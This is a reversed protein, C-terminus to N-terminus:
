EAYLLCRERRRLFEDFPRDADNPRHPEQDLLSAVADANGLLTMIADGQWKERYERRLYQAIEFGVDCPRLIERDTIVLRVGGCDQGEFKSSTPRFRLPIARLGPLAASNLRRALGYGDMWPAGFVEFPTDTGRGVSVNTTEMWGIGPYLIAAALSRMNPSPSIWPLETRDYWDGRHWGELPIVELKARPVRERQFLRALEGVTMGHRVPMAHFGVFSERGPDLMPGECRDGRIPNPRDLVVFRIGHEAAAELCEGMTSVYTYYRTGIDQIDFVLTDLNALSQPTPRRTEGYLSFVPLGTEPDESDGIRPDDRQGQLGHEPSFVAVLEVGPAQHLVKVTSVGRRNVGTQNTILGVKANRLTKFGDRELVDIGTLVPFTGRKGDSETIPDLAAVAITGIRGALPNVVGVGDPHLRNVLVIYFMDHEPDIWLVNGTFGGHGFARPSLFDGRNISYTSHHDWGLCRTVARLAQSGLPVTPPPSATGIEIPTTMLRVTESSLVQQDSYQGNRLMMQAFRALDQATSFLGAHGAIGGLAAARPDHVEGQLWRGDRQETVEARARRSANPLYGTERMGLPRFIHQQSFQHVDQGTLREILKGLVIFGVDTYVFRTGPPSELKLDCIRRWALEPGQAYDAIPNDPILGGQHTLLHRVTITQKGQEGFEPLHKAVPDDLAVLQREVLLMISTATAVPKTISAMDFLTETTMAHRDPEVQRDGFAKLYAVKGHRAILVVGGCFDGAATGHELLADITTLREPRFGLTEPAVVALESHQGQANPGTSLVVIMCNLAIFWNSM